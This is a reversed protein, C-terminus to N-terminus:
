RHSLTEEMAGMRADLSEVRKAIDEMVRELGKNTETTDIILKLTRVAALMENKIETLKDEIDRTNEKVDGTNEVTSYSPPSLSGASYVPQARDNDDGPSKLNEPELVDAAQEDDARAAAQRRPRKQSKPVKKTM